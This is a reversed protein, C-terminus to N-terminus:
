NKFKEYIVALIFILLIPFFKFYQNNLYTKPVPIKKNILTYELTEGDNEIDFYWKKEDLIYDDVTSLERYYYNGYDLEIVIEGKEDTSIEKILNDEIDFIGFLVNYLPNGNEDTKVVSLTGKKKRNELKAEVTQGSFTIEFYHNDDDLLYDIPASLEKYYYKGYSLDSIEITGSDDTKFTGIKEGNEKYLGIEVDAIPLSNANDSKILKLTGKIPDDSINVIIENAMDSITFDYKESSLLYGSPAVKELIYYSGYQLDPLYIEGNEDTSGEYILDGKKSYLEIISGMLGIGTERSTKVIKLNGKKLYNYVDLINNHNLDIIEEFKNDVYDNSHFIEIIKYRGLPLVISEAIGNKDTSIKTVYDGFKYLTTGRINTIDEDAYVEFQVNSLPIKQYQYENNYFIMKEGFKNVRIKSTDTVYVKTSSIVPEIEGAVLINQIGDGIFLKYKHDYKSKKTVTIPVVGNNNFSLTISTKDIKYDANEIKVDFNDLVDRSDYLFLKEGKLKTYEFITFSPTVYHKSIANEIILRETSIDIESGNGWYDTSFKVWSGNGLITEWIMAQTAMRMKETNHNPYSYGYYAILQVRTKIEESIKDDNWIGEVYDNTGEHIGPEVCYAPEGDISYYKFTESLTLNTTPNYRTFKYNSIDQTLTAASVRFYGAFIITLIIVILQKLTQNM